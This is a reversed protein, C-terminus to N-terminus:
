EDASEGRGANRGRRQPRPNEKLESPLLPFVKSEVHVQKFLEAARKVVEPNAAAVDHEEALDKSLDYLEIAADPKESVDLKIAKWDGLRVAQKGGREQFEWYLSGHKPQMDAPRGLLTPLYSIGDTHKTPTAGLLEACTPLFDWFAAVHDTTKGAEITGPWRAIFPVRIGGEYM